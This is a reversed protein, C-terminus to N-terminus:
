LPIFLPVSYLPLSIVLGLFVAGAKIIMNDDFVEANSM